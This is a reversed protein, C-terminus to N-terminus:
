CEFESAMRDLGEDAGPALAELDSMASAEEDSYEDASSNEDVSSDSAADVGLV